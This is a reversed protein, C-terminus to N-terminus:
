IQRILWILLLLRQEHWQNETSTHKNNFYYVPFLFPQM